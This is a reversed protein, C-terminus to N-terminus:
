AVHGLSDNVVQFRDLDCLLLAVPARKRRARAMALWIRDLLLSRNPLGTLTDHLAVHSLKAEFAKRDTVDIMVAIAGTVGGFEDRVPAVSVSMEVRGGDATESSMDIDSLREGSLVAEWRGRNAAAQKGSFPIKRGLVEAASWGLM